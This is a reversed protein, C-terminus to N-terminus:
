QVNISTLASNAYFQGFCLSFPDSDLALTYTFVEAPLSGQVRSLSLKQSVKWPIFVIGFKHGKRFPCDLALSPIGIDKGFSLSRFGNNTVHYFFGEALFSIPFRVPSFQKWPQFPNNLAFNTMQCFRRGVLFIHMQILEITIIRLCVANFILRTTLGM